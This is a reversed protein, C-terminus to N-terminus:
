QPAGAEVWVRIIDLDVPLVLLDNTPMSLNEIRLLSCEAVNMKQDLCAGYFRAMKVASQHSTAFNTGGEYHEGAHCPACYLHFIPQVDTAYSYRAVPTTITDLEDGCGGLSLGALSLGVLSLGVLWVRLVSGYITCLPSRSM